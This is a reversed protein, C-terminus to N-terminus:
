LYFGKLGEILKQMAPIDKIAVRIFDGQLGAFNRCDRVLIGRKGLYPILESISSDLVKLLAFNVASPYIRLYNFCAAEFEHYFYSRSAEIKNRVEDSYKQDKLASIGAKQALANVSWPDRFGEFQALLSREAFAAGLRLGPISYFKTLSYLVILHKYNRLYSRASTYQGPPLFDFFSEDFLIKCDMEACLKLIQAFAEQQLVSGTPNHPSCLFLLDCDKLTESWQEKTLHCGNWGEAGLTIYCVEAGVSRAAREYESFTPLPIAVKRPKLANVITFILEGAGNGVMIEELPLELHSALATRLALCEPDPYSVIEKLSENLSEWVGQPPGFPNINASLDIFDHLGYNEQAKRLNGGHVIIDGRM